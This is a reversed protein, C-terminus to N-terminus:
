VLGIEKQTPHSPESLTVKQSLSHVDDPCKNTACTSKEIQYKEM